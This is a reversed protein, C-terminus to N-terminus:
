IRHSKIWDLVAEYGMKGDAVSLGLDVLERQTYQISVDNMVLTTLMAVMGIRKNGDVFAHNQTLAYAFRAAKEEVTPYNETDEYGSNVSAVASELLGIDRIGASGGFRDILRQHQYIIEDVTLIIM